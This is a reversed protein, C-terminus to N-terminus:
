KRSAGEEVPEGAAQPKLFDFDLLAEEPQAAQATQELIASPIEPVADGKADPKLFDFDMLNGEAAPADLAAVPLEPIEPMDVAAQEAAKTFDFDIPGPGSARVEEVVPPVEPLQETQGALGDLDFDVDGPQAELAVPSIEETPTLDPLPIDKSPVAPDAAHAQPEEEVIRELVVAPEPAAPALAPPEQVAYLPNAGDIDRGLEAAEEWDEGQGSTMGHLERALAEFSQLDRRGAYISLLKVRVAHRGPEKVLAEKLIDEAQVDRGYAIYVDAEALPDVEHHGQGTPLLLGTALATTATDGVGTTPAPKDRHADAHLSSDTAKRAKRRRSTYIGAAGLLALLLGAGPILYDAEEEPPPPAPPKPKAPAPAAAAPAPAQAQTASPVPQVAPAPAVPASAIVPAEPATAPKTGARAAAENQKQMELLLSNTVELLKQLDGVKQELAQVRANSEAVQREMTAYDELAIIGAKDDTASTATVGSLTLRPKAGGPPATGPKAVVTKTAAQPTSGTARTTQTARASAPKTAQSAAATSTKSPQTVADAAAASATAQAADSAPDLLFVFERVMRGGTSNLELLMDVFPENVPQTSTVRVFQREGRQEVSFRLSMLVPNFEINAQRYAEASALKVTLPGDEQRSTSILEIDARLPQGLASLVTLDGWGAADANSFLMAMAIAASLKKLQFRTPKPTSPASM